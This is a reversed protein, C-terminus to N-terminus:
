KGSKPSPVSIPTPEPVKEFPNQTPKRTPFRSPKGTPIPTPLHTPESSSPNSTEVVFALDDVDDYSGGPCSTAVGNYRIIVRIAQLSGNGLTHTTSITNMGSSTPKVTHIFMWEPNNADNAHFFDVFDHTTSYAWVNAVIRIKVGTQLKTSGLSIIRIYDVSEDSHFYGIM